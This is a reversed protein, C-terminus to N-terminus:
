RLEWPVILLLPAQRVYRDDRFPLLCICLPSTRLPKHIHRLQRIPLSNALYPEERKYEHELNSLPLCLNLFITGNGFRNFNSGQHFDM